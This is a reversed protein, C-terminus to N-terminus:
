FSSALLAGISGKSCGPPWKPYGGTSVVTKDKHKEIFDEKM